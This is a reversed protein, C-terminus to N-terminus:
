PLNFMTDFVKSAKRLLYAHLLFIHGGVNFYTDGEAMDSRSRYCSNHMFGPSVNFVIATAHATANREQYTHQCPHSYKPHTQRLCIHVGRFCVALGGCSPCSPSPCKATLAEERARAIAVTAELGLQRGQEDSLAKDGVIVRKLATSADLWPQSEFGPTDSLVAKRTDGLSGLCDLARSSVQLVALMRYKQALFSINEWKREHEDGASCDWTYASEYFFWLLDNF